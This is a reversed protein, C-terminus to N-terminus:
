GAAAQELIRGGHREEGPRAVLLGVLDGRREMGRAAAPAEGAEERHDPIALGGQHHGGEEAVGVQDVARDVGGIRVSKLM